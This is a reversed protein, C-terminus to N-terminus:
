PEETLHKPLPKRHPLFISSGPVDRNGREMPESDKAARNDSGQGTRGKQVKGVEVVRGKM